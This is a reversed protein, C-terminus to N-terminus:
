ILNFIDNNDIDKIIKKIDGVFHGNRFEGEFQKGKYEMTGIGEPKGNKFDGRFSLGNKYKLKGYGERKNRYYEGEYESGNNWKYKGKGHMEGNLFTGTYQNNNIWTYTGTGTIEDDVFDGEYIGKDKYIIKGKGNKKGNKFNGIFSYVNSKEEGYGEKKYDKIPGNYIITDIIINRKNKKYKTIKGNGNLIGNNFEGEFIIGKEDTYLCYNNLKGNVFNGDLQKGNQFRLLGKGNLPNKKTLHGNFICREGEYIISIEKNEIEDLEELIKNQELLTNYRRLSAISKKNFFNKKSGKLNIKSLNISNKGFKEEKKNCCFEGDKSRISNNITVTTVNFINGEGEKISQKSINSNVSNQIINFSTIKKKKKDNKKESTINQTIRESIILPSSIPNVKKKIDSEIISLNDQEDKKTIENNKICCTDVRCMTNYDKGM